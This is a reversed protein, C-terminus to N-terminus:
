LRAGHSFPGRPSTAESDASGGTRRRVAGAVAALGLLGVAAPAPVVRIMTIGEVPTRPEHAWTIDDIYVRMRSTDTRLEIERATFDTATFTASWIEIRGPQPLYGGLFPPDPGLIIGIVSSGSIRGPNPGPDRFIWPALPIRSSPDSWGAESAHVSFSVGAVGYAGPGPDLTLIVEASAAGPQLVPRSLEFEWSQGWTTPATIIVAVAAVTRRM